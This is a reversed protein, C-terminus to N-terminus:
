LLSSKGAGTRGVVGVKEGSRICFSVDKLSYDLDERYRMSVSAFEVEGRTVALEEGTELPEGDLASYELVREVSAFAFSTDVVQRVFWAVSYVTGVTLSMSLALLEPDLTSKLILLVGANVVVMSSAILDVYLSFARSCAQFNVSTKLHTEILQKFADMFQQAYDYARITVVGDLSVTM